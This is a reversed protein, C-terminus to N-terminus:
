LSEEGKQLTERADIAFVAGRTDWAHLHAAAPLPQRTNSTGAVPFPCVSNRTGTSAPLLPFPLHCLTEARSTADGSRHLTATRVPDLAADGKPWSDRTGGTSVEKRCRERGRTVDERDRAPCRPVPQGGLFAPVGPVLPLYSVTPTGHGPLYGTVRPIADGDGLLSAAELGIYLTQDRSQKWLTQGALRSTFTAWSILHTQSLRPHLLGRQADM